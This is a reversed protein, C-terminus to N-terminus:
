TMVEENRLIEDISYSVERSSTFLSGDGTVIKHEMVERLDSKVVLDEIFRRFMSCFMIKPHM